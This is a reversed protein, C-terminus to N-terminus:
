ARKQLSLSKWAQEFEGIALDQDGANVSLFHPRVRSGRMQEIADCYDQSQSEPEALDDSLARRQWDKRDRKQNEQKGGNSGRKRTTPTVSIKGAERASIM